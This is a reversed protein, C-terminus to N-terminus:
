PGEGAAAGHLFFSVLDPVRDRLPGGRRTYLQHTFLARVTGVLLAPHLDSAEPRVAGEQVAM